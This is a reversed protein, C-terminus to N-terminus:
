QGVRWFVPLLNDGLKLYSGFTYYDIQQFKSFIINSGMRVIKTSENNKFIVNKKTKDIEISSNDNFTVSNAKVSQITRSKKLFQKMCYFFVTQARNSEIKKDNIGINSSYFALLQPFSGMMIGLIAIVIMLEILTFGKSNM